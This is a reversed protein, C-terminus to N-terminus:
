NLSLKKRIRGHILDNVQQPTPRRTHMNERRAEAEINELVAVLRDHTTIRCFRGIRDGVASIDTGTPFVVVGYVHLKWPSRGRVMAFLSTCYEQVQHYPNEGWSCKVIALNEGDNAVQWRNNAADGEVVIRGAYNKAEVVVLCERSIVICDIFQSGASGLAVDFHPVVLWQGNEVKSGTSIAHFVMQEFVNAFQPVIAKQLNIGASERDKISALRYNRLEELLSARERNTKELERRLKETQRRKEEELESVLAETMERSAADHRHRLELERIRAISANLQRSTAQEREALEEEKEELKSITSDVSALLEMERERARRQELQRVKFILELTLWVLMSSLLCGTMTTLYSRWPGNDEFPARLWRRYDESFSAPLTSLTYLRGIIEYRPAPHVAGEMPLGNPIIIKRLVLFPHRTLERVDELKNWILPSSTAYMVHQDPCEREESRCDTIVLALISSNSDLLQQLRKSENRDLLEAIQEPLKEATTSIRQNSHFHFLMRNYYSAYNKKNIFRALLLALGILVFLRLIMYSKLRLPRQWKM